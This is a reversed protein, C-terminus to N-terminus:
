YVDNKKNQKFEVLIFDGEEPSRNLEEFASPRPQPMFNMDDESGDSQFEDVEEESTNEAEFVKKKVTKKIKRLMERRDVPFWRHLRSEPGTDEQGTLVQTAYLNTQSVMEDLNLWSVNELAEKLEELFGIGRDSLARNYKRHFFKSEDIEVIKPVGLQDFGGVEIPNEKLDRECVERCFNCWDVITHKLYGQKMRLKANPTTEAGATFSTLLKHM